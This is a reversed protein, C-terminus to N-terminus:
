ELIGRKQRKIKDKIWDINEQLKLNVYNEDMFMPDVITVKAGNQVAYM